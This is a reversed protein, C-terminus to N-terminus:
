ATGDRVQANTPVSPAPGRNRRWSKWRGYVPDSDPPTYDTLPLRLKFVYARRREFLLGVEPGTWGGVYFAAAAVLEKPAHYGCQTRRAGSVKWFDLGAHVQAEVRSPKVR